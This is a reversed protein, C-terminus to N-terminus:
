DCNLRARAIIDDIDEMYNSDMDKLELAKMLLDGWMAKEEDASLPHRNELINLKQNISMEYTAKLVEESADKLATSSVDLFSPIAKLVYWIFLFLNKIATIV